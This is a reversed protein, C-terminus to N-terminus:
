ALSSRDRVHAALNQPANIGYATSRYDEYFHESM